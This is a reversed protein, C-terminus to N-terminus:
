VNLAERKPVWQGRILPPDKFGWSEALADTAKEDEEGSPLNIKMVRRYVHAFEHAVTFTIEDLADTELQPGLYMFYRHDLETVCGIHPGPCFIYLSDPIAEEPLKPVVRKLAAFTKGRYEESVYQLFREQFEEWEM